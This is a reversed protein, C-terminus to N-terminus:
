YGIGARVDWHDNKYDLLNEGYGHFFQLILFPLFNKARIKGRLTLEQGGRIPNTFYKGGPYLKLYLEDQQFIWSAVNKLTFDVEWAGRYKMLDSSTEDYHYAWWTKINWLFHLYENIGFAGHYRLYSRDWARSTLAGFGNSEHEYFGIDIWQSDEKGFAYRYFIEPNFNVDRLPASDKFANWMMLQTYGIYVETKQIIKAKFSFAIKADQRGLVGYIPRHQFVPLVSSEADIAGEKLLKKERRIEESKDDAGLASYLSVM